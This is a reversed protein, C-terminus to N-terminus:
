NEINRLTSKLKWLVEDIECLIPGIYVIFDKARKYIHAKQMLM